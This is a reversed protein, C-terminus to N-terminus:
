CFDQVTYFMGVEKFGARRFIGFACCLTVPMAIVAHPALEVLDLLARNRCLSMGPQNRQWVAQISYFLVKVIGGHRRSRKRIREFENKRRDNSPNLGVAQGMCDLMIM